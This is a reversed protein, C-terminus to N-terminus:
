RGTRLPILSHVKCAWESCGGRASRSRSKTCSAAWSVRTCAPSHVCPCAHVCERLHMCEVTNLPSFFSSSLASHLVPSTVHLNALPIVDASICFDNRLTQDLLYPCGAGTEEHHVCLRYFHYSSIIPYNSIPYLFKFRM